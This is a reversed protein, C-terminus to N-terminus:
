PAANLLARVTTPQWKGGRATPVMAEDLKAAIQRLTLGAERERRVRDRVDPSVIRPAGLRAGAAKKSQLAARTRDGILRREYQAFSAMVNAMMEGAPTTMDVGLDLAVISWGSSRAREMLTAFDMLSRSLRDLKAVVLVDGQRIDDLVRSLAPRKLHKASYGEDGAWEVDWGRKTAAAEIVAKQAALGLGSSAQDETSVRCYGYVKHQM